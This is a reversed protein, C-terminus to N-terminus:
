FICGHCRCGNYEYITKTVPNYGDVLYLEHGFSNLMVRKRGNGCLAHHIHRGEKEVHVRAM